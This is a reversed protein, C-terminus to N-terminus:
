RLRRWIGMTLGLLRNSNLHPRLHHHTTIIAQIILQLLHMTHHLHMCYLPPHLIIYLSILM